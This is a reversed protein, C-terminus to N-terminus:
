GEFIGGKLPPGSTFKTGPTTIAKSIVKAKPLLKLCQTVRQIRGRWGLGKCEEVGTSERKAYAKERRTPGGVTARGKEGAVEKERGAGPTCRGEKKVRVESFPDFGFLM